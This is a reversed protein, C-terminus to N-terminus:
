THQIPLTSSQTSKVFGCASPAGAHLASAVPKRRDALLEGAAGLTALLPLLGAHWGPDQQWRHAQAAYYSGLGAPLGSVEDPRLLGDAAQPARVAPLGLGRRV